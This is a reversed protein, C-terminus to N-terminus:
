RRSLIRVPVTRPGRVQGASWTVKSPDVLEFDPFHAMWEELAIRLEMRALNSGICRHMGLGFAAHRNEARDIRVQDADAFVDPDRNAAPFPLLVWDGEKMPCGRFEFDEAVLRAMTVPAYARLFEEIAVPIREPEAVLRRRDDPHQALHWLSAGIASWTTDIGAIMLLVMTGRVHDPALKQGDLEADLLFSTLDDRPDDKHEAIRADIYAELEGSEQQAKREEASADVDELVMRIFRRFVDADEQPFGLMKVIVRLPIDQAYEAAADIEEKGAVADILETCLERAFPECGRIRKPSFAPLLLRRALEHFPPDSTIPPALGVPAPPDDDDPRVESVVVSRSTFHDTDYAIASVDDHRVPLWTGGYRDSHAVPCRARLEDWIPFPDAVWQPDTHDFDTAWDTVPPRDRSMAESRSRIAYEPCNAVALRAKEELGEPVAGDNVESAYGYDDIEFLEPALASCRNHGQCKEPDVHVRM